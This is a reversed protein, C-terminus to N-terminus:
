FPIPDEVETFEIEVLLKPDQDAFDTLGTITVAVTPPTDHGYQQQFYTALIEKIGETDLIIDDRERGGHVEHFSRCDNVKGDKDRFRISM